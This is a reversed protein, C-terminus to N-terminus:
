DSPKEVNEEEEIQRWAEALVDALSTKIEGGHEVTKREKWNDPDRMRLYDLCAKSDPLVEKKTNEVRVIKGIPKGNKDQGGQPDFVTKKEEIVTGLCRKLLASVVQGNIGPLDRQFLQFLEPDKKMWNYLTRLTVGLEDAIKQNTWGLSVWYFIKYYHVDKNYTAKRAM